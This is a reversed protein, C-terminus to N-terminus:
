GGLLSSKQTKAKRDLKTDMGASGVLSPASTREAQGAELVSADAKTPPPPPAKPKDPKPMM